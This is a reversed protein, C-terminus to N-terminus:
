DSSERGTVRGRALIELMRVRAADNVLIMLRDLARTVAIYFLSEANQTGLEEIDTVVVAPAELGKFSHITGYPVKGMPGRARMPAVIGPEATVLVAAACTADGRPSLIVTDETGFGEKSLKHLAAGLVATQSDRDQYVFIDPEVGNDPRRVRLYPPTLGGLLCVLEAIRPTNRCNVRLSFRPAGAIRADEIAGNGRRGSGYISQGEFDGFLTWRGAALGGKLCADLFDMYEPRLIDQSEDVVLQDYTTHRPDELLRATAREPLEEQWFANRAEDPPSIGLTALMLGHLTAATTGPALPEVERRTWDGLMRNFCVLLVQKGAATRRRAQEIALLTKGTGAPGTFLVRPNQEMADLAEFQEETYRKLEDQRRRHRSEPSEFLEFEPRLISAIKACSQPTPESSAKSFWPAGPHNALFARANDLLDLVLQGISKSELDRADIVQWLHWEDSHIDFHLYPFVVGSWCVVSALHPDSEKLVRRVSHMGEAAQRFPGRPDPQESTGLLWLGSRRLIRRVAKIELCAVGKGPVIAVFDVEGALKAIHHALDLSHLVIWDKTLPDNAFQQFIEREGPSAADISALCPYMRAMIKM